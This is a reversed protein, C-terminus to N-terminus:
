EPGAARNAGDVTRRVYWTSIDVRSRVGLKRRIREVHGEATRVSITLAAAIEKNIRGEAILAAVELERPSLVAADAAPHRQLAYEVAQAPTMRYGRLTAAPHLVETIQAHRQALRDREEITESFLATSAIHTTSTGVSAGFLTAARETQDDAAAIFGAILLADPNEPRNPVWVSSRMASDSLRRADGLEGQRWAYLALVHQAFARYYTEDAAASLDILENCSRTGREVDGLGNCAYVLVQRLRYPTADAPDMTRSHEIGATAVAAADDFQGLLLHRFARGFAMRARSDASAVGPAAAVEAARQLHADASALDGKALALSEADLLAILLEESPESLLRLAREVWHRGEDIRGSAWWLQPTCIVCARYATAADGRGIAHESAARIDPLSAELDAVLRQQQPGIWEEEARAAVTAFWRAHADLVANEREPDEALRERGFRRLVYLMRYRARRDQDDDARLLVSKELLAETLDLVEAAELGSVQVADDLAFPGALASLSDWLLRERTSCLSYSDAISAILSTTRGPERGARRLLGISTRTQELIQLPSLAGIRCAALEIALPLGDVLRCIEAVEGDGTGTGRFAPDSRRAVAAFLEVSAGRASTDLGGLAVAVEEDVGLPQRSTAVVRVNRTAALLASVFESVAAAIHECNDLIVLSPEEDLYSSLAALPEALTSKIGLTAIVTEALLAGSGLTGLPVFWVRDRGGAILAAAFEIALRTKGVGAPGRLTVLRHAALHAEVSALDQERGVFPGATRPLRM